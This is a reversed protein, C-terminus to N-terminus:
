STPWPPLGAARAKAVFFGTLGSLVAFIGSALGFEDGFSGRDFVFVAVIAAVTLAVLACLVLTTAQRGRRQFLEADHVAKDRSRVLETNQITRADLERPRGHTVPGPGIGQRRSLEILASNGLCVAELGGTGTALKDIRERVLAALGVTADTAEGSSRVLARLLEARVGLGLSPDSAAALLLDPQNDAFLVGAYAKLLRADEDPGADSKAAELVQQRREETRLEEVLLLVQAVVSLPEGDVHDALWALIGARPRDPELLRLTAYTAATALVNDDVNDDQVRAVLPEVVHRSVFEPRLAQPILREDKFAERAAAVAQALGRTAWVDGKFSDVRPLFWSALRNARQAYSPQGQLRVTVPSNRAGTFTAVISGGRELKRLITEEDLADIQEFPWDKTLILEQFFDFPPRGPHIEAADHASLRWVFRRREIASALAPSFAPRFATSGTSSPKEVLLCGRPRLACAIFSGLLEPNGILDVPVPSAIVTREGATSAAILTEGGQEWAVPEWQMPYRPRSRAWLCYKKPGYGLALARFRERLQNATAQETFLWDPRFEIDRAKVARPQQGVLEFSAAGLFDLALTAGPSLFQHLVVMGVDRNRGQETWRRRFHDHGIARQAAPTILSNSAFVVTDVAGEDLLTGLTDTIDHDPVFVLDAWSPCAARFRAEGSVTFHDNDNSNVVVAVTARRLPTALMPQAVTM